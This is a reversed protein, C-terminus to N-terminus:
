REEQPPSAVRQYQHVVLLIALVIGLMMGAIVGAPRTHWAQDALYGLGAGGMVPVFMRWTTDAFTGLMVSRVTRANAIKDRGTERGVQKM